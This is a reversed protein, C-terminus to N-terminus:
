GVHQTGPKDTNLNDPDLNDPDLTESHEAIIGASQEELVHIIGKSKDSIIAHLFVAPIAVCLGLVTTVLAASIGGAMTKPDNGGYLTIAQFTIIMGTVTGLLGLLPAIMAIIKLFNISREIQPLEKLIAESLKLELDSKNLSKNDEYISLVRGLPNNKFVTACRIQINVKQRILQLVVFRELAIGLAFAGLAIIFFGITGGQEIRESLSPTSILAALFEGGRPGTPDIGFAFEKNSSTTLSNAAKLYKKEPQRNLRVLDTDAGQYKLYQGNAILNFTGIRTVNQSERRGDPNVVDAIFQRTKGSEIMEQQMLFWLSAIDAIKPLKATNDLTSILGDLGNTRDRYQASVISQDLTLRTKIAVDQLHSFVGHLPGLRDKLDKELQKKAAQNRKFIRELEASKKKLETRKRETTRLIKKQENKLKLFQKERHLQQDQEKRQEGRIIQLLEKMNKATKSQVQGQEPIQEQEAIAINTFSWSTLLSVLCLIALLHRLLKSKLLKSKLPRFKM